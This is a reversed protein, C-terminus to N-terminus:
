VDREIVYDILARLSEKAAGQRADAFSKEFGLKAEEALERATRRAYDVSGCKKMLALVKKVEAATKKQRPKNMIRLVEKREKYSCHEMLHILLLTRKGEYIDGGIEKGYKKGGVANLLDDQIQFAVGWKIGWSDFNSKLGGRGACIAGLRLPAVVTYYGAKEGAMEFYDKEDIDWEKEKVWFMERMQGETTRNCLGVFEELIELAKEDGLVGRNAMLTEWVKVFTADGANIAYPIGYILHLCPKGRRQLSEDEIDDHVLFFNQLLELAVATPVAQEQKGWFAECSLMCLAPRLRKGGRLNYDWLMDRYDKKWGSGERKPLFLPLSADIVKSKQQLVSLVDM